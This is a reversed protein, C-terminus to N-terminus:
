SDSNMQITLKISKCENLNTNADNFQYSSDIAVLLSLNHPHINTDISFSQLQKHFKGPTKEEVDENGRERESLM